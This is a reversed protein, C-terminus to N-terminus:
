WRYKALTDKWGNVLGEKKTDKWANAWSFVQINELRRRGRTNDENMRDELVVM